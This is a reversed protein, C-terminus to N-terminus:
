IIYVPNWDIHNYLKETSARSAIGERYRESLFSVAHRWAAVFRRRCSKEKVCDIHVHDNTPSLEPTDISCYKSMWMAFSPFHNASNKVIRQSPLNYPLQFLTVDKSWVQLLKIDQLVYRKIKVQLHFCRICLWLEQTHVHLSLCANEHWNYNCKITEGASHLPILKSNLRNARLRGSHMILDAEQETGSTTRIPYPTAM